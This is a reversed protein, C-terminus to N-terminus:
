EDGLLSNWHSWPFNVLSLLAGGLVIWHGIDLLFIQWDSLM